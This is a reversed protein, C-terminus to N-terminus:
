SRPRSAILCSITSANMRMCTRMKMVFVTECLSVPNPQFRSRLPAEEKKEKRKKKADPAPKPASASASTSGGAAGRQETIVSGGRGVGADGADVADGRSSQLRQSRRVAAAVCPRGIAPYAAPIRPCRAAAAPRAPVGRALRDLWALRRSAPASHPAPGSRSCPRSFYTFLDPKYRRLAVLTHAPWTEGPLDQTAMDPLDLMRSLADAVVNEQGSVYQIELDFRSLFEMWRCQRRNLTKQTKLWTLPEHDTHLHVAPGELYCRWSQLCFIVGLLEQETTIYNVEAPKLKRACYAVPRLEDEHYQMLAGGIGRISADCFVHFPKTADPHYMLTTRQLCTELADWARTCEDAWAPSKDKTQDFLCAALDAYKPIFRAFYNMFGLFRRTATLIAQKSRSRQQDTEAQALQSVFALPATFNDLVAVKAPDPRVGTGNVLHGLFKLEKLAFKCKPLQCFLNAQHLSTLVADLHRAHEEVSASMILIDDLYVLCYGAQIHERLVTNMARQFVAPANTLGMPMVTWQYLGQPTPFATYARSQLDLPIQYYGSCLDLASFLQAGRMLDISDDIRPLNGADKVTRDNLARYDVCFRLKGNAKPVFLVSASWPSSSPEIWGRRKFENIQKLLEDREAPTLRYQRVAVPQVNDKLFIQMDFGRATRGVPIEGCLAGNERAHKDIVKQVDPPMPAESDGSPKDVDILAFRYAVQKGDLAKRLERQYQNKSAVDSEPTSATAVSLATSVPVAFATTHQRHVLVSASDRLPRTLVTCHPAAGFEFRISDPTFRIAGYNARLYDEGLISDYGAIANDLVLFTQASHVKGIKV